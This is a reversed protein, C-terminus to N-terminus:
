GPSFIPSFELFTKVDRQIESLLFPVLLERPFDIIQFLIFSTRILLYGFFFHILSSTSVQLVRFGLCSITGTISGILLAGYPEIMLDAIAGVAM